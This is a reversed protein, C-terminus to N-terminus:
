GHSQVFVVYMRAEAHRHFYEGDRFNQLFTTFLIVFACILLLNHGSTKCAELSTLADINHACEIITNLMLLQRWFVTKELLFCRALQDPVASFHVPQVDTIYHDTIVHRPFECVCVHIHIYKHIIYGTDKFNRSQTQIFM